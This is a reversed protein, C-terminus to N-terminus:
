FKLTAKKLHKEDGSASEQLSSAKEYSFAEELFKGLFFEKRALKVSKDGSKSCERNSLRSSFIAISLIKYAWGVSNLERATM